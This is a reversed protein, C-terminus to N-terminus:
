ASPEMDQHRVVVRTISTSVVSSWELTRLKAKEKCIYKVDIGHMHCCQQDPLKIHALGKPMKEIWKFIQTKLPQFNMHGNRIQSFNLHFSLLNPFNWSLLSSYAANYLIYQNM